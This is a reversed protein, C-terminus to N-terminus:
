VGLFDNLAENGAEIADIHAQAIEKASFDRARLGDRAEALTLDTLTSM